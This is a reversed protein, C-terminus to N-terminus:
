FVLRRKLAMIRYYSEELRAPEIRGQEVLKLIIAHVKAAIDPDFSLNNGFLLIDAGALLALEVTRELGYHDTVARMQLDDTVIVGDWGLEWRLLGSLVEGSLTAPHEKDWRSNFLHGTMVMDANGSAIITAFPVLERETWQGTVDPLGHHSDNWASGHGPFHKLCTLVGKAHLGAMYSLAQLAVREPDAGFSRGLKGIAPNAPNVNVDVVPALNLNIGVEALMEGAAEGVKRTLWLDDAAGLEQASPLAAFGHAPKLRSVRGGEQDVAIFLRPGGEAHAQLRAALGRLQAADRVNREPKDLAVDYDFLVVGGVLGTAIDRAIRSKAPADYGRFGVMLMQGAMEALGAKTEQAFSPAALALCLM